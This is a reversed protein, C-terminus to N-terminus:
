RLVAAKQGAKVATGPAIACEEAMGNEFLCIVTSGLKFRGMEAGRSLTISRPGEYTEEFPTSGHGGNVEGKWVTEISGVIMAGVLIVCMKGRPTDFFACARENRSFLGGIHAATNLNVSFLKGPIYSLATLRGDLPMHVRHYNAPSLYITFYTGGEFPRCIEQNGGLLSALTFDQGKAQILTGSSITGSASKTGDSPSLIARPDPDLPRAGAKLPRTFFENFTAYETPDQKECESMDVKYPSIFNRIAFATVAGMRRGALFGAAKTLLKQPAAYQIDAKLASILESSM